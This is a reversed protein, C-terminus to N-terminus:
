KVRSYDSFSFCAVIMKKSFIQFFVSPPYTLWAINKMTPIHGNQMVDRVKDLYCLTFQVSDFWSTKVVGCIDSYIPHGAAETVPIDKWRTEYM